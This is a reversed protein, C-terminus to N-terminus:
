GATRHFVDTRNATNGNNAGVWTPHFTTGVHDLGTYDGVFYGRADPATRMDFSATTVRSEDPFTVGGDHSHTVWLDTSLVADGPVDNRFDYYSVAVRGQSDVDVMATFADVGRPAKDVVVPAEWTLGGTRSRALLIDDHDPDNFRRDMWVVYVNGRTAANSSRDVAWDPLIDGTRVDHGDDPDTVEDVLLRNVFIDDSWTVGKDPSRVLAVNYGRTGHRNTAGHILNFGNILTGDPLVEVQNGITQNLVGHEKFIARAPEWSAGGNTSRAFYAESYFSSANEFGRQSARESPSIIRQWTAYVLSSNFPDATLTEKDNFANGIARPNDFRVIRPTSWSVGGNDSFAALIANRATSNDFGITIAHLRGNPSFSLWPDTGREYGGTDGTGGACRTFAPASHGWTAGGDFSYGALNGHAGGDNWRDQQWFAVVNNPNTPNVAVHTEVEANLYNFSTAAAEGPGGCGPAWPSLGSAVSTPGLAFPAAPAPAAAVALAFAAAVPVLLRRMQFVEMAPAEM